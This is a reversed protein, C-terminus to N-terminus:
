RNTGLHTGSHAGSAIKDGAPDAIAEDSVVLGDRLTIVRDAQAALMADHTVMV